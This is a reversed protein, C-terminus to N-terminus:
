RPYMTIVEFPSFSDTVVRLRHAPRRGQEPGRTGVDPYHVDLVCNGQNLYWRAGQSAGFNLGRVLVSTLADLREAVGEHFRGKGAVTSNFGHQIEIHRRGRTSDGELLPPM